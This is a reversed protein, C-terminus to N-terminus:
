DISIIIKDDILIEKVRYLDDYMCMERSRQGSPWLEPSLQAIIKLSARVKCRTWSLVIGPTFCLKETRRTDWHSIMGTSAAEDRINRQQRKGPTLTRV